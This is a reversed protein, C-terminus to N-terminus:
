GDNSEEKTNEIRRATETMNTRMGNAMLGSMEADSLVAGAAMEFDCVCRMETMEGSAAYAFWVHSYLLDPSGERRSYVTHATADAVREVSYSVTPGADGVPVTVRFRMRDGDQRLDTVPHGARGWEGPDNAAAWVLPLQADVVIRVDVHGAM